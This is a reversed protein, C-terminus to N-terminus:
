SFGLYHATAQAMHLDYPTDIEISREEPMIRFRMDGFCMTEHALFAETRYAFIGGNLCYTDPLDQRRIEERSRDFTLWDWDVGLGTPAIRLQFRADRCVSVVCDATANDLLLMVAADIDTANTFPTTCQLVVIIEPQPAISEIAHVITPPTFSEDTALRAPRNIVTAGHQAIDAIRPDDTSVYVVDILKSQRAANIPWRVLPLGGVERLNKDPIGKSGGRAPIIAVVTM